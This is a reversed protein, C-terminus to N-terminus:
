GKPMTVIRDSASIYWQLLEGAAEQGVERVQQLWQETPVQPLQLIWAQQVADSVGCNKYGTATKFGLIAAVLLPLAACAAGIGATVAFPAARYTLILATLAVGTLFIGGMVLLHGKGKHLKFEQNQAIRIASVSSGPKGKLMGAAFIMEAHRYRAVNPEFGKRDIFFEVFAACAIVSPTATLLCRIAIDEKDIGRVAALILGAVGVVGIGFLLRSIDTWFESLLHQRETSRHYYCVQDLEWHIRTLRQANTAAPTAADAQEEYQRIVQCVLALRNECWAPIQNSIKDPIGNLRYFALIRGLESICRSDLYALQTKRSHSGSRGLLLRPGHELVGSTLLCLLSLILLPWCGEKFQETFVPLHAYLEYFLLFGLATLIIGALQRKHRSQLYMAAKDFRQMFAIASQTDASAGEVESALPALPVYEVAYEQSETVAQRFFPLREADMGEPPPLSDLWQSVFSLASWDPTTPPNTQM